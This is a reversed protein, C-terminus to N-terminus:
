QVGLKIHCAMKNKKQRKCGPKFKAKAYRVSAPHTRWAKDHHVEREHAKRLKTALKEEPTRM